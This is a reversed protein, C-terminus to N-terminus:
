GYRKVMHKLMLRVMDSTKVYEENQPFYLGAGCDDILRVFECLNDIYVMSRKNEIDPFIPTKVALKALRQYNGKCSKGYVM